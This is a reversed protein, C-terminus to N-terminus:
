FWVTKSLSKTKGVAEEVTEAHQVIVNDEIVAERTVKGEKDYEAEQTVVGDARKEKHVALMEHAFADSLIPTLTLTPISKELLDGKKDGFEKRAANHDHYGYKHLAILLGAMHDIGGVENIEEVTFFDKIAVILAAAKDLDVATSVKITTLVHSDTKHAVIMKYEGGANVSTYLSYGAIDSELRDPVGEPQFTRGDVTRYNPQPSEHKLTMWGDKHPWERLVDAVIDAKSINM